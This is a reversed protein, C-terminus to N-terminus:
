PVPWFPTQNRRLPTSPGHSSCLDPRVLVYFADYVDRASESIDAIMAFPLDQAAAAATFTVEAENDSNFGLLAYGLRTTDFMDAGSSRSQACQDDIAVPVPGDTRVGAQGSLELWDTACAIHFGQMYSPVNLNFINM